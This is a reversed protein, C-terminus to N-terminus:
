WHKVWVTFGPKLSPVQRDGSTGVGRNSFWQGINNCVKNFAILSTQALVNNQNLTNSHVRIPFHCFLASYCVVMCYENGSGFFAKIWETLVKDM